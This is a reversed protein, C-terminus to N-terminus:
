ELEFRFRALGLVVEDGPELAASEVRRGNVKVGNTSGLDAVVWRGDEARLEAHRRSVNPDEVTIDCDRSRGILLRSGSLVTRKDEGVFLARGARPADRPELKRASRDPSYVMTHGFDGAAAGAEDPWDPVEEEPPQILQAQIGFEGLSLRDDTEFDITPRTVLALGETRAHELLYDSLEKKLGDEYGEFHGRDEPSLWVTYTNPVYTHSISKTQNDQMEKALKRAIEVPEVKSRFARSFAGGVLGELKAELNRLVSV